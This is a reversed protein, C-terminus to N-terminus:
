EATDSRCVTDMIGSTRDIADELVLTKQMGADVKESVFSFVREVEAYALLPDDFTDKPQRFSFILFLANVAAITLSGALVYVIKKRKSKNKGANESVAAALLATEIKEAFGEPAKVDRNEAIAELEAISLKGIEDISKM